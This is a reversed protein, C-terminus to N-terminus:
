LATLRDKSSLSIHRAKGPDDFIAAAIAKCFDTDFGTWNGNADPMSFGPVGQSTGCLVYGRTKIKDLTGQAASPVASGIWLTLVSLALLGRHM